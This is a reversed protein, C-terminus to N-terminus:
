RLVGASRLCDLAADIAANLIRDREIWDREKVEFMRVQAELTAIRDRGHMITARVSDLESFYNEAPAHHHHTM